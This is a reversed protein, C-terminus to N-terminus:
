NRMNRTGRATLIFKLTVTAAKKKKFIGEEETTLIVEAGSFSTRCVFSNALSTIVTLSFTCTAIPNAAAFVMRM